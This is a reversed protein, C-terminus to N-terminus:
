LVIQCAIDKLRELDAKVFPCKSSRSNLSKRDSPHIHYVCKWEYESNRVYAMAEAGGNRKEVRFKFVVGDIKIIDQAKWYLSDNIESRYNEIVIEDRKINKAKM